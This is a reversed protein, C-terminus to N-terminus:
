RLAIFLRGALAAARNTFPVWDDPTVQVLPSSASESCPRVTWGCLRGAKMELAVLVGDSWGYMSCTRPAPQTVRQPAVLWEVAEIEQQIQAALDFVLAAAARDRTTRLGDILQRTSRPNRTLIATITGALVDMDGVAIGRVKALDRQAGTLRQASYSLPYIRHLGAVATRIRRGGLFPGFTRVTVSPSPGADSEHVVGITPHRRDTDLRVYVPVGLGGETRNWRPQQSDVLNRELWAAEHSSDCEIAEIRTVQPVMRLLHKRGDAKTWYSRVRSQLNAARGIYLVRSCSDRFRYVGPHPPLLSIASALGPDM